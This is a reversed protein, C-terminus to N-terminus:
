KDFPMKPDLQVQNMDLVTRPIADGIVEICPALQLSLPAPCMCTLWQQYSALVIPFTDQDVSFICHAKASTCTGVNALISVM